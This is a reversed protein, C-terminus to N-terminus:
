LLKQLEEPQEPLGFREKFNTAHNWIWEHQLLTELVQKQTPNLKGLDVPSSYFGNPPELKYSPVKQWEYPYYMGFDEPHFNPDFALLLTAYVANFKTDMDSSQDMIKTAASIGKEVGLMLLTRGPRINRTPLEKLKNVEKTYYELMVEIVNAPTESELMDILMLFAAVRVSDQQNESLFTMVQEQIIEQAATKASNSRLCKESINQLIEVRWRDTEVKLRQHLHSLVIEAYEHFRSLLDIAATKEQDNESDLFTFYTDHGEWVMERLEIAYEHHRPISEMSPLYGEYSAIFSLDWLISTKNGSSANPLKLIQTLFPVLVAIMKRDPFHHYFDNYYILEEGTSNLFFLKEYSRITQFDLDKGQVYSMLVEPVIEAGMNKWDIQDLGELM